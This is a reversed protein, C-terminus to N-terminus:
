AHRGSSSVNAAAPRDLSRWSRLMVMLEAISDILADPIEAGQQQEHLVQSCMDEWARLTSEDPCTTERQQPLDM